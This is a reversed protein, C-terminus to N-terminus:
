SRWALRCSDLTWGHEGLEYECKWGAGAFLGYSFSMEGTATRGDSEEADFSVRFAHRGTPTHRLVREGPGLDCESSDVATPAIRQIVTILDPPAGDLCPVWDPYAYRRGMAAGIGTRFGAEELPDVTPPLEGISVPRMLPECEGIALCDAVIDFPQLRLSRETTDGAVTITIPDFIRSAGDLPYLEYSGAPVYEFRFFGSSDTRVMCDVPGTLVVGHDVQLDDEKTVTGRVVGVDNSPKCSLQHVQANTGAAAALLAGQLLVVARLDIRSGAM